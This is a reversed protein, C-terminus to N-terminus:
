RTNKQTKDDLIISILVDSEKKNTLLQNTHELIEISHPVYRNLIKQDINLKQINTEVFNPFTDYM